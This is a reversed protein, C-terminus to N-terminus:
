QKYVPDSNKRQSNYWVLFMVLLALLFPIIVIWWNFGSDETVVFNADNISEDETVDISITDEKVSLGGALDSEKIEAKYSGACLKTEWYGDENTKVTTIEVKEGDEDLYYVSIEIDNAGEESDDQKDNNNSDIFVYGSVDTEVDCIEIGLIEGEGEEEEANKGDEEGLVEGDPNNGANLTPDEVPLTQPNYVQVTISDSSTDGDKDTVLVNCTYTGATSPVTTTVNSGTCSGSWLYSLAPNGGTANATLVVTTGALVTTGNNSSIQVTPVVNSVTVTANEVTCEGEGDILTDANVDVSGECVRLRVNYTGANSYKHSLGSINGPTAMDALSQYGAGEGYNISVKWDADDFLGDVADVTSPDTFSGTFNATEGEDISINGGFTVTPAVNEVTYTVTYTPSTNGAEDEIWYEFSYIGESGFGYMSTDIMYVQTPDTHGDTGNIDREWDGSGALTETMKDDVILNMWPTTVANLQDEYQYRVTYYTQHDDHAQPLAIVGVEGELFLDDELQDATPASSDVIFHLGLVDRFQHITPIDKRVAEDYVHHAMYYEGDPLSGVCDTFEVPTTISYTDNGDFHVLNPESRWSCYALKGNQSFAFSGDDQAQFIVFSDYLLGASPNADTIEGTFTLENVSSVYAVSETIEVGNKYQTYVANPAVTDITIEQTTVKENEAADEATVTITYDGDPLINSIDVKWDSGTITAPYDVGNVNVIVSVVDNLDTATGVLTPTNDNHKWETNYYTGSTAILEVSDISLVPDTNDVIIKVESTRAWNGATDKGAAYFYYDGDTMVYSSDGGWRQANLSDLTWNFVTGNDYEYHYRRDPSINSYSEGEARWWFNIYDCEENCTAQLDIDGSHLTSDIPLDLTILPADNDVTVKWLESWASENGAADVAKVRWWFISNAVNNATKDSNTYTARWRLNTASEDHYSEYIYHDADTVDTWDSFLVSGNVTSNNLPEILSPAEPATNDYTIQCSGALTKDSLAWDSKNGSTDVARVAFGYTGEGPMWSGNYEFISEDFRVENLGIGGGANFSTYEYYDFDSETNDDWDPHMRQIQTIDGCAFEVSHDSGSLRHLGTPVAPATIDYTIFCENSWGSVMENSDVVNDNDFDKWARVRSGYTGESGPNGGFSRYNTYPNTYRENGVWTSGNNSSYQRQYKITSDGNSIDSWHVSAGNINTTGGTCAIENPDRPTPYSSSNNEDNVNYGTQVPVEPAERDLTVFCWESWDGPQDLNDVARVRYKYEGDIDRIDGSFESVVPHAIINGEKVMYDYHKIDFEPNDSWDVTIARNNTVGNCGLDTGEHDIIRIGTAQSPVPDILTYLGSTPFPFNFYDYQNNTDVVSVDETVDDVYIHLTDNHTSTGNVTLVTTATVGVGQDVNIGHWGNGSTSINNVTVTSGNVVLGSRGSNMLTVDNLQINTALYTNIGHLNTGASGDIILDNITINAGLIGLAANNSDGARTFTPSITFGNGNITIANNLDVRHGVSIDSELEITDGAVANTVADQLTDYCTGSVSAVTCPDSNLIGGPLPNVVVFTTFHNLGKIVIYNDSLYGDKLEHFDKGNESYQAAIEGDVQPRPLYLDYSFTGNEMNSNIEFGNLVGQEKPLKSINSRSVSLVGESSEVENFVIKLGNLEDITYEVGAEIPNSTKWIGADKIWIEEVEVKEKVVELEVEGEEIYVDDLSLKDVKIETEEAEVVEEMEIVEEVNIIDGTETVVEEAELVERNEEKIVAEANNDEALNEAATEQAYAIVPFLNQLLLSILLFMPFFKSQFKRLNKHLKM